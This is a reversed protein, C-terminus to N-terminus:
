YNEIGHTSDDENIVVLNNRNNQDIIASTGAVSSLTLGLALSLNLLM